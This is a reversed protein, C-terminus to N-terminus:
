FPLAGIADDIRATGVVTLLAAGALVVVIALVSTLRQAGRDRGVGEVLAGGVVGAVLGGVHARWDIFGVAFTLVLNLLLLPLLQNVRANALAQHRRKWNYIFVAGLVGFVAGSAGVSVAFLEQPDTVDVLFAYSTASAFLGTSFYIALFRLRGIDRELVSGFVYLAWANFAVHLLGAHLFMSTFLRWYQGQAVLIRNEAGLDILTRADPGRLLADPGGAVVEAVFVLGIAVLLLRTGVFAKADAVAVRRGPGRRFERRAEGVCEPCQHGVPAPIMCETCIPRGCRTCHVGTEVQPHRYCTELEGRSPPPPLASGEDM